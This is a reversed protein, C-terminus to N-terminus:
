GPKLSWFATTHVQKAFTQLLKAALNEWAEAEIAEAGTGGLAKTLGPACSLRRQQRLYGDESLLTKKATAGSASLRTCTSVQPSDRKWTKVALHSKLCHLPSADQTNIYFSLFYSSLLLILPSTPPPQLFSLLFPHPFSTLLQHYPLHSSLSSWLCPSPIVLLVSCHFHPAPPPSPPM